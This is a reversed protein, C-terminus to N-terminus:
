KKFRIDDCADGGPLSHRTGWKGSKRHPRTPERFKMRREKFFPACATGDLAAYLFNPADARKERSTPYWSEWVRARAPGFFKLYLATTDWM